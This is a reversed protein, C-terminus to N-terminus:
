HRLLNINKLSHQGPADNTIIFYPPHYTTPIFYFKNLSYIQFESCDAVAPDDNNLHTYFTTWTEGADHSVEYHRPHGCMDCLYSEIKLYINESVQLECAEKFIPPGILLRGISFYLGFITGLCFLGAIGLWLCSLNGNNATNKRKPKETM